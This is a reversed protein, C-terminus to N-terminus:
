LGSEVVGQTLGEDRPLDTGLGRFEHFDLLGLVLKCGHRRVAVISGGVLLHQGEIDLSGRSLKLLPVLHRRFQGLQRLLLLLFGPLLFQANCLFKFTSLLALFLLNLELLSLRHVPELLPLFSACLFILRCNVFVFFPQHQRVLQGSVMANLDILSARHMVQVLLRPMDAIVLLHLQLFLIHGHPQVVQRILLEVFTLLQEGIDFSPVRLSALIAVLGNLFNFPVLLVMDLLDKVLHVLRLHGLLLADLILEKRVFFLFQSEELTQLQLRLVLRIQLRM